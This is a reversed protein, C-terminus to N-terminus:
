ANMYIMSPEDDKTEGGSDPKRDSIWDNESPIQVTRNM